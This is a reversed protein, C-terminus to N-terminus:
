LWHLYHCVQCLLAAWASVIAALLVAAIKLNSEPDQMAAAFQNAISFNWSM